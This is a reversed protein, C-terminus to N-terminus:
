KPAAAAFKSKVDDPLYPFAKKRFRADTKLLSAYEPQEYWPRAACIDVCDEEWPPCARHCSGHKAPSQRKPQEAPKVLVPEREAKPIHELAKERFASDTRMLDVWQKQKYWPQPMCQMTCMTFWPPCASHCPTEEAVRPEPTPQPTKPKLYPIAMERFEPDTKMALAWKPQKYWPKAACFPSCSKVFPPCARHCKKSENKHAPTPMYTQAQKYFDEDEEMMRMWRGQEFWPVPMCSNTCFKFWPPCASYCRAEMNGTPESDQAPIYMLAKRRFTPDQEMLEKWKDQEYWPKDACERTCRTFWPPCASYCKMLNDEAELPMPIYAQAKERFAADQDMMEKWKDQEYWPKDVCERTCRTFWPPCASHCVRHADHQPSHPAPYTKAKSWENQEHWPFGLPDSVAGRALAFLLVFMSQPLIAFAVSNPTM